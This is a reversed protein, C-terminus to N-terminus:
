WPLSNFTGIILSYVTYFKSFLKSDWISSHILAKCAPYFFDASSMRFGNTKNERFILNSMKAFKWMLLCYAHFKLAWKRSFILFFYKLIVDASNAWLTTFTLVFKYSRNCKITGGLTPYFSLSAYWSCNETYFWLASYGQFSMYHHYIM